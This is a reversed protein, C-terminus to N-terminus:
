QWAQPESGRAASRQALLAIRTARLSETTSVDPREGRALPLLTREAPRLGAPLPLDRPPTSSTTVVLRNRAWLLEATGETGTLRMRYDGHVDSAAPTLWDVEITILAGPTTLSAVGYTAFGPAAPVTGAVAGTVTGAVAGTLLLAADIDHVALDTLIGGYRGAELFWPPRAARNLKHPGSSSVGVIAGLGGDAVLRQAAITVPYTRKELLLSVSRGREAAAREIEDLQELSTCLPKDAVVDCGARLADVVVRGRDGYVGAVVVISPAAEELMRRHDAFTRAGFPGACREAVAPSPDAVAVLRLEPTRAIEDLAYQVHPHAAGAVAVSTSRDTV